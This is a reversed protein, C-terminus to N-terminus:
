DDERGIHAGLGRLKGVINEYGREVHFTDYVRTEGDAALAAVILAAGARLDTARVAAGSFRPIGTVVAQRGGDAVVQAGLKALETLYNFRSEYVTDTVISVGDALALVSTFPQQLDTPFGPHPMATLRTPKIRTGPNGLIRVGGPVDTAEVGMEALKFLVARLDAFRANELVVDGGTIAAAAAFTGAEIRDPMVAFTAGHLSEVGRIFITGTGQGTIDAGMTALLDGLNQVDPEQAANQIVTEGPALTAAMMINMTAGVSPLDLYINAGSLGSKPAYACIAGHEATVTAGLATMGKLHLDVARAGIHCGGPQPIIAKGLRALVPGLVWFSARMREVLEVPAKHEHLGSANIRITHGDGEFAVKAGLRSLLEALTEIDSIRPINTLVTDGSAALLAGAILAVAANKSGGIAVTGCLRQGGRVVIRKDGSNEGTGGNEM